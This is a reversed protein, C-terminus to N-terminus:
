REYVPLLRYNLALALVTMGTGYAPGHDSSFSGDQAQMAQLKEIARDNWAKWAELDSHFLAQAMYYRYYFAHDTIDLDKRRKIFQSAAQYEPLDKRKGVAYVLTGIATRTVGDGHAQAPQYSVSGDQLTNSKFFALAKELAENPVEIGANKAGLLGMLVTGSVTTDADRSEPSYRWAGYPNKEQATLTCRVALELAQGVSRQSEVPVTSDQWLLDDNVVGYAESLALTAFGHHYMPGHGPGSIHGSNADQNLIIHRLARRLTPAYPGFDPDEGSAMLAMVCIGTIGPGSEQGPWRGEPLQTEVLYKLSRETMLRVAFPVGRGYQIASDQARLPTQACWITALLLFAVLPCGARGPFRLSMGLGPHGIVLSVATGNTRFGPTRIERRPREGAGPTRNLMTNM